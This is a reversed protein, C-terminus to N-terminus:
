VSLTKALRARQRGAGLGVGFSNDLRKLQEKPSLARWAAVNEEYLERNAKKQQERISGGRFNHPGGGKTKMGSKGRSM